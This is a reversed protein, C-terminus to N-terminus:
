ILKFAIKITLYSIETKAFIRKIRVIFLQCFKYYFKQRYKILFRFVGTFNRIKHKKSSYIILLTLRIDILLRYVQIAFLDYLTLLFNVYLKLTAPFLVNKM